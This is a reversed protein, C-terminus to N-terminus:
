KNSNIPTKSAIDLARELKIQHTIENWQYFLIRIMERRETVNLSSDENIKTDKFLCKINATVPINKYKKDDEEDKSETTETGEESKIDSLIESGIPIDLPDGLSKRPTESMKRNNNDSKKPTDCEMEEDLRDGGRREGKKRGKGRKKGEGKREESEEMEFDENESM